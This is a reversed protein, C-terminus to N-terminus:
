ECRIEYLFQEIFFFEAPVIDKVLLVIRGEPPLAQHDAWTPLMEVSEGPGLADTVLDLLSQICTVSHERHEESVDQFIGDFYAQPEQFLFSPFDCSCGGRVGIFRLHPKSFSTALQADIAADVAKVTLPGRAQEAIEHDAAIYLM